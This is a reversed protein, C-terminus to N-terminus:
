TSSLWYSERVNTASPFDLPCYFIGPSFHKYQDLIFGKEYRFDSLQRSSVNTRQCNKHFLNKKMCCNVELLFRLM